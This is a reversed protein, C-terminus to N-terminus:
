SILLVPLTGLLGLVLGMITFICVGKFYGALYAPLESSPLAVLNTCGGVFVLDDDTKAKLSQGDQPSALTTDM